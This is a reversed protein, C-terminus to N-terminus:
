TGQNLEEVVKKIGRAINTFAEDRDEWKTVPKAERPLAMLRSIPEDEWDVYRLIIPIVRAEGADHREMARNMEIDYCYDSALFDSSVLLLIIHATNLHEHIEGEWERGASIKRDHWDTIVGQRKLITLHNELQERLEEDRHSYSYFLEVADPQLRSGMTQDQQEQIPDSLYERQAIIQLFSNEPLPLFPNDHTMQMRRIARGVQEGHRHFLKWIKEVKEQETAGPVYDTFDSLENVMEDYFTSLNWEAFNKSQRVYDNLATSIEDKEINDKIFDLAYIGGEDM